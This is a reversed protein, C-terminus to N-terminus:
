RAVGRLYGFSQPVHFDPEDTQPDVWSIWREKWKGGAVHRFDARYMGFKVGGDSDLPPFGLSQFTELAIRGQVAYGDSTRVGVVDLGPFSWSFDFIRYHSARYDLVRGLPDIELCFYQELSEDLAFFLEVRDEFVVDEKDRFSEVLVIDDDEVTFTFYLAYADFLARFETRPPPFDEWPYGFATEVNAQKWAPETLTGDLVINPEAVYIAEYTKKTTM